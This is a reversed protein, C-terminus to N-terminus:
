CTVPGPPREATVLFAVVATDVCANGQGFATHQYGPATVLTAGLQTALSRAWAVPTAPDDLTGVVMSPPSGTVHVPAAPPGQFPWLACTLANSVIGPGLIPAVAAAAAGTAAVDAITGVPPGDACSIALFADQSTGYTGDPRRETYSDALAAVTAGRGREADALARALLQYGDRGGYIASAVGLDFESQSLRRTPRSGPVALGARDIRRSLALYAAKPDGGGHFACSRRRACWVFFDDLVGEFGAAQQVEGDSASISPDVAGDLVLARVREPHAEAYEAGISTGYSYGLYTLGPDGLAARIRELDGVTDATSVHRLADGQNRWCADVFAQTGAVLAAQEAPTDPSSDLAYYRDMDYGCDVPDSSGTGRPDWSVVDFRDRLTPDLSGLEGRLFEIGSGGPGGPNTVLSGIRRKPDRAPARILALDFTPGAPNADDQPVTLTACQVGAGCPKWALAPAGTPDSAAGAPAILTAGLALTLGLAWVGVRIAARSGAPFRRQRDSPM